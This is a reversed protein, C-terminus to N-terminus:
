KQIAITFMSSCIQNKPITRRVENPIARGKKRSQAAWRNDDPVAPECRAKGHILENYKRFIIYM